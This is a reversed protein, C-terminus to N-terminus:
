GMLGMWRPIALCLDPIFTILLLAVVEAIIFPWIEKVVEELKLKAVGCAIFLCAGLPPTILGINLNVCMMIGFHVPNMGVSYALPALIPALIILAVGIDMFMGTILLVANILLLVVIRNSSLGLIAEAVITPVQEAALIWGLISAAGMVLLIMGVTSCTRGLMPVLDQASLARRRLAVVFAYVVAVAAAETPTFVGFLIGGLIIAPMALATLSSPIDKVFEKMTPRRDARSYGRKVSIFHNYVMLALAVLLGPIMGGAFLAAISVGMMSGYIVMIISPPIIPGIVSSAATVAASYAAGYGDKEMAPILIGGIAATDAVAAGTIGAFFVSALINVQGLGGRLHGVLHKSFKILGDTLGARNMLESALIFFPIAMLPFSDIGAYLRQPILSLLAPIGMKLLALTATIGLSFSIPTGIIMLGFLTLVIFLVM